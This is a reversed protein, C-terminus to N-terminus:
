RYRGGASHRADCRTLSGVFEASVKPAGFAPRWGTPSASWPGARVAMRPSLSAAVAAGARIVYDIRRPITRSRASLQVISPSSTTSSGTLGDEHLAPDNVAKTVISLLRRTAQADQRGADKPRSNEGYERRM